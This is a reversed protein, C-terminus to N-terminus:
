NMTYALNSLPILNVYINEFNLKLPIRNLQAIM